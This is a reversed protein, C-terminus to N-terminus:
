IIDFINLGLKNLVDDDDVVVCIIDTTSVLPFLKNFSHKGFVPPIIVPSKINSPDVVDIIKSSPLWCNLANSLPLDCSSSLKIANNSFTVVTFLSKTIFWFTSNLPTTWIPSLVNFIEFILLKAFVIEDNFLPIVVCPCFITVTIFLISANFLKFIAFWNLVYLESILLMDDFKVVTVFWAFLLAVLIDPKCDEINVSSVFILVIFVFIVFIWFSAFVFCFWILELVDLIWFIKDFWDVCAVDNVFKSLLIVVILLWNSLIAVDCFIESKVVDTAVTLVNM